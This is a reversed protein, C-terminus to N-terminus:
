CPSRHQNKGGDGYLNRGRVTAFIGVAAFRKEPEAQNDDESRAANTFRPQVRAAACVQEELKRAGALDGQAKLTLALNNMATLTDPHEKGLLRGRAELVQEQLKCAGALDGQANLTQALSNITTLTNLTTLTDPHEKGL